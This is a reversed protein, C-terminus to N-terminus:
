HQSPKYGSYYWKAEKLFAKCMNTWQKSLYPIINFDREQMTWFGIQNTTNFVALLVTKLNKPLKDIETIDWREVFDTFLELEELSGYIDYLDDIIVLLCIIKTGMDRFASYEPGPVM